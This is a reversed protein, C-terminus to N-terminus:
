ESLSQRWFFFLFLLTLIFDPYCFLKDNVILWKLQIKHSRDIDDIITTFDHCCLFPAPQSTENMVYYLCLVPFPNLSYINLDCGWHSIDELFTGGVLTEVPMVFSAVLSFHMNLYMMRDSLKENVQSSESEPWQLSM